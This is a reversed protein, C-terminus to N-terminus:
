VALGSCGRIVTQGDVVERITKYPVVFDARNVVQKVNAPVIYFTGPIAPPLDGDAQWSVRYFPIGNVEGALESTEKLRLVQGSPEIVIEKGDNIIIVPHATLNIINFTEM